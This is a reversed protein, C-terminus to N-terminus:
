DIREWGWDLRECAIERFMEEKEDDTMSDFEEETIDLETESEYSSHINAGSDCWTKFKM